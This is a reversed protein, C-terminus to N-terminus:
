SSSLGVATVRANPINLPYGASENCDVGVSHTGAPMVDTVATLTVYEFGGADKDTRVPLVSALVPGSTTGIRCYGFGTAENPEIAAQVTATVLVRGPRPLTIQVFSCPEFQQSAPNCSGTFGYRGLGGQTASPVQDLSSESIEAGRVSDLELDEGRLQRDKVDAGTLSEDTVEAGGVANAAVTPNPYEGFLDGGAPGSPTTSTPAPPEDNGRQGGLSLTSEDIDAGTLSNDQVDIGTLKGDKVDKGTVTGNKISRSNVSNKALKAGALASGGLALFVGITALVNAYSFVHKFRTM